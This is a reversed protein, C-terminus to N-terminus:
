RRRGKHDGPDFDEKQPLPETPRRSNKNTNPHDGTVAAPTPTITNAHRHRCKAGSPCIRGDAPPPQHTRTRPPAQRRQSSVARHNQHALTRHSLRCIRRFRKIQILSIGEWERMWFKIEHNINSKQKPDYGSLIAINKITRM